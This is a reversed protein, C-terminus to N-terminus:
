LTYPGRAAPRLARVQSDRFGRPTFAQMGLAGMNTRWPVGADAQPPTKAAPFPLAASPRHPRRLFDSSAAPGCADGPSSAPV